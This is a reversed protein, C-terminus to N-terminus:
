FIPLHQLVCVAKHIFLEIKCSCYIYPRVIKWPSLRGYPFFGPGTILPTINWRCIDGDIAALKPKTASPLTSPMFAYM